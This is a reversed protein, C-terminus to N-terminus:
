TGKANKQRRAWDRGRMPVNNNNLIWILTLNAVHYKSKIDLFKSGSKYENIINAIVVPDQKALKRPMIGNAIRLKQRYRKSSDKRIAEFHPDGKHDQYYKKYYDRVRQPYKARYLQQRVVKLARARLLKSYLLIDPTGRSLCNSASSEVFEELIEQATFM